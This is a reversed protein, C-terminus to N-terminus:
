LPTGCFKCCVADHDHGSRGCSPCAQTSVLSAKRGAQAMEVSVIGTPVAIIGYGMIMLVSAVLQGIPTKPTIDGFGVTTVTVVAWYIARPISDYGGEAGEILYMLAGMIVVLGVVAVLFVIIKRRSGRLAVMLVDAEGLFHGLKLVRFVRLLRLIRVVLLSQAGPIFFSLYTPLLALLDVLGFFSVTYRLPSRVALMRLIYEVTFLLTFGWEVVRLWDGHRARFTPVSELCVALVSLVIAALLALDFARGAPTDSEFVITHLRHRWGSPASQEALMGLSYVM